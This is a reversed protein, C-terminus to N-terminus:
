IADQLNAEAVQYYPMPEVPQSMLVPLDVLVKLTDTAPNGQLEAQLVVEKGNEGIIVIQCTGYDYILPTEDLYVSPRCIACNCDVFPLHAKILGGYACVLMLVIITYNMARFPIGFIRADLHDHIRRKLAKLM